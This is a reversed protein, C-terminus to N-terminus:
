HECSGTSATKLTCFVRIDQCNLWCMEQSVNKGMFGCPTVAWFFTGTVKATVARRGIRLSIWM